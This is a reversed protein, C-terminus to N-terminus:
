SSYERPSERLYKYVTLYAVQVVHFVVVGVALLVFAHSFFVFGERLNDRKELGIAYYLINAVIGYFM